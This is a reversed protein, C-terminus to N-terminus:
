WEPPLVNMSAFEEHEALYDAMQEPTQAARVERIARFRDARGRELLLKEIVEAVTRGEKRAEANLRDRLESPVKITTSTM